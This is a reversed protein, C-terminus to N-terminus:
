DVMVSSIEGFSKQEKFGKALKEKAFCMQYESFDWHAHVQVDDLKM